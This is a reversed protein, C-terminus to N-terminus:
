NYTSVNQRVTNQCFGKISNLGASSCSIIILPDSKGRFFWVRKGFGIQIDPLEECTPLKLSYEFPASCINLESGSKYQYLMLILLSSM